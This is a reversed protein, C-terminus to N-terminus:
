NSRTEPVIVEIGNATVEVEFRLLPAKAPGHIVRGELDFTSGHCPCVFSNRSPRVHCGQHTCEVSLAHVKDARQQVILIPYELEPIQVVFVKRANDKRDLEKRLVAIRGDVLVGHYVPVSACGITGLTAMVPLFPSAAIGKCFLRRSIAFHTM